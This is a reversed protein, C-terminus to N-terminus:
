PLDCWTGDQRGFLIAGRGNWRSTVTMGGEPLIAVGGFGDPGPTGLTWGPSPDEGVRGIVMLIDDLGQGRSTASGTLLYRDDDLVHIFSLFDSPDLVIESETQSLLDAALEGIRYAVGEDTRESSLLLLRGTRPNASLHHAHQSGARTLRRQWTVGHAVDLKGLWVDTADGSTAQDPPDAARGAVVLTREDLVSAADYSVVGPPSDTAYSFFLGQSGVRLVGGTSPRDRDGRAVVNSVVALSGDAMEFIARPRPDLVEGPADERTEPSYSLLWRAGHRAQMRAIFVKEGAGEESSDEIGSVLLDGNDALTSASPALDDRDTMTLDWIMSGRGDLLQMGVHLAGTSLNAALGVFQIEGSSTMHPEGLVLWHEDLLRSSRQRHQCQGNFCVDWTCPDGDNPCPTDDPQGACPGTPVDESADTGDDSTTDNGTGDDSTADDSTGEDGPIDATAVVDQDGTSDSAGEDHADDDALADVAQDGVAADDATSLDWAQGDPADPDIRADPTADETADPRRPADRPGSAADTISVTDGGDGAADVPPCSHQTRYVCLGNVCAATDFCPNAHAPCDAAAECRAQDNQRADTCALSWAFTM